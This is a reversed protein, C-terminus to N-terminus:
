GAPRPPPLPPPENRMLWYSGLQGIAATYEGFEIPKSVYSNAGSLYGELRDRDEKSSTLLVVPLLRTRENARLRRLVELGDIKPLKIDLLVVTPLDAPDRGAHAGAAFLYDLAEAGDNAVIIPNRINNKSLARRALEQDGRDDEVLLIVKEKM